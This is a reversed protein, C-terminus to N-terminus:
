GEIQLIRPKESEPIHRKLKIILMGDTYQVGESLVGDALKFKLKFARRGIGRHLYDRHDTEDEPRSGTVLLDGKLQEIQFDDKTFGATAIEIQYLEEDTRVINYPPYTNKTHNHVSRDFERLINETTLFM